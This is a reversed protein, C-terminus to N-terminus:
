LRDLVRALQKGNSYIRQKVTTRVNKLEHSVSQIHRAFLAHQMDNVWPGRYFVLTVPNFQAVNAAVNAALGLAVRETGHKLVPVTADEPSMRVSTCFLTHDIGVDGYVVIPVSM